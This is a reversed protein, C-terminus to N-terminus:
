ESILIAEPKRGEVGSGNGGVSQSVEYALKLATRKRGAYVRRRIKELHERCHRRGEVRPNNCSRCLGRRLHDAIYRQRDLRLEMM